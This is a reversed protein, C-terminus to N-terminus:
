RFFPMCIIDEEVKQYVSGNGESGESDQLKLSTYSAKFTFWLIMGFLISITSHYFLSYGGIAYFLAETIVILGGLRLIKDGFLGALSGFLAHIAYLATFLLLNISMLALPNLWLSDSWAIIELASTYAIMTCATRNKFMMCPVLTIMYALLFAWKVNIFVERLHLFDGVTAFLELM